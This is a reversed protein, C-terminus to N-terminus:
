LDTLPHHINSVQLLSGGDRKMDISKLIGDLSSPDDMGQGPKGTMQRILGIMNEPKMMEQMKKMSDPDSMNLNNGPQSNM